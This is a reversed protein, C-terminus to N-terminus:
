QLNCPPKNILLHTNNIMKSNNLINIIDNELNKSINCTEKYEISDPKLPFFPELLCHKEKLLIGILIGRHLYNEMDFYISDLKTFCANYFINSIATKDHVDINEFRVLKDIISNISPYKTVEIFVDTINLHPHMEFASKAQKAIDEYQQQFPYFDKCVNAFLQIITTNIKVNVDVSYITEISSDVNDFGEWCPYGLFKGMEECSSNILSINVKTEPKVILIGQFTEYHILNPFKNKIDKLIQKSKEGNLSSEHHDIPQFLFAPRVNENVLIVNLLCGIDLEM